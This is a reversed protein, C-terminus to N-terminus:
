KTADVLKKIQSYVGALNTGGLTPSIAVGKQYVRAYPCGGLQFMVKTFPTAKASTSFSVWSPIMMDDPCAGRIHTLPLSNILARVQAIVKLNTVTVEGNSTTVPLSVISSDFYLVKAGAPVLDGPPKTSAAALSTGVVLLAASLALASPVRVFRSSRKM